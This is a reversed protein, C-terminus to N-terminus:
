GRFAASADLMADAGAELDSATVEVVECRGIERALAMVMSSSTFKKDHGVAALISARDVGPPIPSPSYALAARSIREAVRVDLLRRRVAVANAGIMGWCVAEGHSMGAYDLVTEIGHGLTHGYNLLRRQDGEREDMEVIAAKVEVSRSVLELMVQPDRELVAGVQTETLDFLAADGIVGSKLAEYTGSLIERRPLTQLVSVDSIVMAPPHFAGILNKGLRHNVAVKGGISSDCQALLTTPVHVLRVGRLYIAAAFGATDGAVGGGVVIVTADRRAGRELLATVIADVSALGKEREEDAMVIPEIGSLARAISAGLLEYVPKAVVLFRSRHRETLEGLREILGVGVHVVCDHSGHRVTRTFGTM